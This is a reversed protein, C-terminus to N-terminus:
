SGEGYSRQLPVRWDRFPNWPITKHKEFNKHMSMPVSETSATAVSDTDLNKAELPRFSGVTSLSTLAILAMRRLKGTLSQRMALLPRSELKSKISIVDKDPNSGAKDLMDGIADIRADNDEVAEMLAAVDGSEVAKNEEVLAVAQGLYAARQSEVEYIESELELVKSEDRLKEAESISGKLEQWKADYANLPAQLEEAKLAEEYEAKLSREVAELENYLPENGAIEAQRLQEGTEQLQDKINEISM